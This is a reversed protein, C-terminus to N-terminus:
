SYGTGKRMEWLLTPGTAPWSKLLKTETSVANHSPGLFAKWDHTVAGLPLPKPKAYVKVEPHPTAEPPKMSSLKEQRPPSPDVVTRVKGDQTRGQPILAIGPILSGLTSLCVGCIIAKLNM